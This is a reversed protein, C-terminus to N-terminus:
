NKFIINKIFADTEEFNKGAKLIISDKDIVFNKYAYNLNYVKQLNEYLYLNVKKLSFLDSKPVSYSLTDPLVITTKIKSDKCVEQNEIIQLILTNIFYKDPYPFFIRLYDNNNFANQPLIYTEPLINGSQLAKKVKILEALREYYCSVTLELSFNNIIKELILYDSFQALNNAAIYAAVHSDDNELVYRLLFAEQEKLLLQKMSDLEHLLCSDTCTAAISQQKYLDQLKNTYAKNNELFDVYEAHVASGSIRCQEPHGASIKVNITSNEAFIQMLAKQPEERLYLMEPSQLKLNDFSFSEKDITATDLPILKGSSKRYLIIRDPPTGNIEGRIQCVNLEKDSCAALSLVKIALMSIVILPCTINKFM